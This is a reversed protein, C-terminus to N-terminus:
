EGSLVRWPARVRHVAVVLRPQACHDLPDTGGYYGVVTKWPLWDTVRVDFVTDSRDSPLEFIPRDIPPGPLVLWDGPQLISEDPVLPKMGAAEAYYQFGWHGAYWTRGGNTEAIRRAAEQAALLQARADCVDVAFFLLGLAINGAAVGWLAKGGLPRALRGAIITLVLVV